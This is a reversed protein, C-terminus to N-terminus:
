KKFHSLEVNYLECLRETSLNSFLEPSLGHKGIGDIYWEIRKTYEYIIKDIENM